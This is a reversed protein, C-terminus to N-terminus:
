LGKAEYSISAVYTANAQAPTAPEVLRGAQRYAVARTRDFGLAEANELFLQQVTKNSPDVSLSESGFQITARPGVAALAGAGAPAVRMFIDFGNGNDAM